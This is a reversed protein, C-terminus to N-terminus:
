TKKSVAKLKKRYFEKEEPTKAEAQRKISDRRARVLDEKKPNDNMEAVFQRFNLM